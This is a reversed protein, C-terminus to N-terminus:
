CDLYTLVSQVKSIDFVSCVSNINTNKSRSVSTGLTYRCAEAHGLISPLNQDADLLAELWPEERSGLLKHLKSVLYRSDDNSYKSIVTEYISSSFLLM